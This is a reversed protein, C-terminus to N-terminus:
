GDPRGQRRSPKDGNGGKERSGARSETVFRYIKAIESLLGIRVLEGLAEPQDEIGQAARWGEVAAYQEDTLTVLM